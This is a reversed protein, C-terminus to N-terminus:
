DANPLDPSLLGLRRLADLPESVSCSGFGGFLDRFVDITDLTLTAPGFRLGSPVPGVESEDTIELLQILEEKNLDNEIALAAGCLVNLFGHRMVNLTEDHYRLAEHLGATVKFPVELQVAEILFDALRDTSPFADATTGGTRAKFGVEEWLDFSDSIAEFFDTQWDFELYVQPPEEELNSLAKKLAGITAQQTARDTPLKVELTHTLFNAQQLQQIHRAIATVQDRANEPQIQTTLALPTPEAGKALDSAILAETQAIPAVFRGLIWDSPPQQYRLFEQAADALNLQAPPFLGAYDLTGELLGAVVPHAPPASPRNSM